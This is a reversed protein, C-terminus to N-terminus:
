EFEIDTLKHATTSTSSTVLKTLALGYQQLFVYTTKSEAVNNTVIECNL